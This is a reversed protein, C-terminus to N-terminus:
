SSEKLEKIYDRPIRRKFDHVSIKLAQSGVRSTVTFMYRSEPDNLFEEGIWENPGIDVIHIFKNPDEDYPKKAGSIGM